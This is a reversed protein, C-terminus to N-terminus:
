CPPLTGESSHPWPLGASSHSSPATIHDLQLLNTHTELFSFLGLCFAGPHSGLSLQTGRLGLVPGEPAEVCLVGQARPKTEGTSPAYLLWFQIASLSDTQLIQCLLELVQPCSFLGPDTHQTACLHRGGLTPEWLWM